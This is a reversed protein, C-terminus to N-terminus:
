LIPIQSRVSVSLDNAQGTSNIVTNGAIRANIDVGHYNDFVPYAVFLGLLAATLIALMGFNKFGRFSIPGNVKATKTEPDHLKDEEDLPQREDLSPDYAYAVLGHESGLGIPYKSDSSISM